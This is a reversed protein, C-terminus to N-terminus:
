GTSEDEYAANERDYKKRASNLIDMLCRELPLITRAEPRTARKSPGSSIRKASLQPLHSTVACVDGSGEEESEGSGKGADDESTAVDIRCHGRKLGAEIM